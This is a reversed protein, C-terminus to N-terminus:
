TSLRKCYLFYGRHPLREEEGKQSWLSAFRRTHAWWHLTAPVNNVHLSQPFALRPIWSTYEQYRPVNVTLRLEFNIVNNEPTPKKLCFFWVTSHSLRFIWWCLQWGVQLKYNTIPLSPFQGRNRFNRRNQFRGEAFVVVKGRFFFNPSGLFIVGTKNGCLIGVLLRLANM